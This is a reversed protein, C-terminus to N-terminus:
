SPLSYSQLTTCSRKVRTLGRSETTCSRKVRDHLVIDYLVIDHLVEQSAENVCSETKKM